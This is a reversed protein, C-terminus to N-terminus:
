IRDVRRQAEEHTEDATKLFAVLECLKARDSITLKDEASPIPAVDLDLPMSIHLMHRINDLLNM